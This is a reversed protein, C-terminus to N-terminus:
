RVLLLCDEHAIDTGGNTDLFGALQRGRQRGDMFVMSMIVRVALALLWGVDLYQLSLVSM